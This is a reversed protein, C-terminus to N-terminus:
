MFGLPTELLPLCLPRFLFTPLMRFNAVQPCMRSHLQKETEAHAQADDGM